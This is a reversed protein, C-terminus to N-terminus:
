DPTNTVETGKKIDGSMFENERLPRHIELFYDGILYNFVM